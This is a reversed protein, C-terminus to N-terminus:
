RVDEDDVLPRDVQCGKQWSSRIFGSISASPVTPLGCIERDGRFASSWLAITSGSQFLYRGLFLLGQFLPSDVVVVRVEMVTGDLATM